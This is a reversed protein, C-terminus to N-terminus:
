LSALVRLCAEVALLGTVGGLGHRGDEGRQVCVWGSRKGSAVVVGVRDGCAEGGGTGFEGGPLMDGM